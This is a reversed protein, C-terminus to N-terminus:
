VITQLGGSPIPSTAEDDAAAVTDLWKAAVFEHNSNGPITLLSDYTLTQFDGPASNPDHFYYKGNGCGHVSVVHDPLQGAGILMLIPHGSQLKKDLTAQSMPGHTLVMKRGTFHTASETLMGLTAGDQGCDM